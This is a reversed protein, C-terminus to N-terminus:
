PYNTTGAYLPRVHRGDKLFEKVDRNMASHQVRMQLNGYDASALNSAMAGQYRKFLVAAQALTAERAQPLPDGDADVFSGYEINCFDDVKRSIANLIEELAQEQEATLSSEIQIRVKLQEVTAYTVASLAM